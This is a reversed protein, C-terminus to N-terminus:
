HGHCVGSLSQAYRSSLYITNPSFVHMRGHHQVCALLLLGFFTRMSFIQATKRRLRWGGAGPGGPVSRRLANAPGGTEVRVGAAFYSQAYVEAESREGQVEIAEAGGRELVM